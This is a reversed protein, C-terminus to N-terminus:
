WKKVEVCTKTQRKWIEETVRSIPVSAPHQATSRQTPAPPSDILAGAWPIYGDLFSSAEGVKTHDRNLTLGTILYAKPSLQLYSNSNVQISAQNIQIAGYWVFWATRFQVKHSPSDLKHKNNATNETKSTFHYIRNAIYNTTANVFTIRNRTWTAKHLLLLWLNQKKTKQKVLSLQIQKQQKTFDNSTKRTHKSHGRSLSQQLQSHIMLWWTEDILKVADGDSGDVRLVSIDVMGLQDGTRETQRDWQWQKDKERDGEKETETELRERDRERERQRQRERTRESQSSHILFPLSPQPSLTQSVSIVLTNWFSM